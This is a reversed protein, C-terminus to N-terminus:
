VSECAHRRRGRQGTEPVQRDGRQTCDPYHDRLNDSSSIDAPQRISHTKMNRSVMQRVIRSLLRM